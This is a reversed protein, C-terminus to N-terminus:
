QCKKILRNLTKKWNKPDDGLEEDDMDTLDDFLDLLEMKLNNISEIENNGEAYLELDPILAITEEKYIKIIVNLPEVLEYNETGLNYIQTQAVGIIQDPLNKELLERLEKIEQTLYNIRFQILEKYADSPTSSLRENEQGSPSDIIIGRDFCESFAATLPEEYLKPGLVASAYGMENLYDTQQTNGYNDSMISRYLRITLTETHKKAIILYM